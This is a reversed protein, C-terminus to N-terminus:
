ISDALELVAAKLAEIEQDLTEATQDDAESRKSELKGIHRALDRQLTELEAQKQRNARLLSIDRIVDRLERIEQSVVRSADRDAGLELEEVRKEQIQLGIEWSIEEFVADMEARAGEAARTKILAELREASHERRDSAQYYLRARDVVAERQRREVELTRLSLERRSRATEFELDLLRRQLEYTRAHRERQGLRRFEATQTIKQLELRLKRQEGKLAGPGRAKEIRIEDRMRLLEALDDTNEGRRRYADAAELRGDGEMVLASRETSLKSMRDSIERHRLKLEARELGLDHLQEDLRQIESKLSSGENRLREIEAGLEAVQASEEARAGASLITVISLFFAFSVLTWRYPDHTRM